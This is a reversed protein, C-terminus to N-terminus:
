LAGPTGGMPVIKYTYTEGRKASLDKWWFKQVPAQETTRKPDAPQGAFSALAPLSRANDASDIQIIQFGLCGDLHRDFTWAVVAIDNNSFAIAPMTTGEALTERLPQQESVVIM